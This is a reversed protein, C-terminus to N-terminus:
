SPSSCRSLEFDDTGQADLGESKAARVGNNPGAAVLGLFGPGFQGRAPPDLQIVRALSRSVPKDM